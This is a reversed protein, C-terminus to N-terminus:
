SATAYPTTTIVGTERAWTMALRFARRSKLITPQAKSKGKKTKTVLDSAEFAAIDDATISRAVRSAEFFKMALGLDGLYSAVTSPTKGRARMDNLWRDAITKLTAPGDNPTPLEPVTGFAAEPAHNESPPTGNVEAPPETGNTKKRATAVRNKMWNAEPEATPKKTTKKTM